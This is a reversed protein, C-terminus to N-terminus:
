SIHVMRARLEGLVPWGFLVLAAILILDAMILIGFQTRQLQEEAQRMKEEAFRLQVEAQQLQELAQRVREQEAELALLEAQLKNKLGEVQALKNALEQREINIEVKTEELTQLDEVLQAQLQNLEKEWAELRKKEQNIAARENDLTEQCAQLEVQLQESDTAGDGALPDIEKKISEVGGPPPTTSEFRDEVLFAIAGGALLVILIAGPLGKM